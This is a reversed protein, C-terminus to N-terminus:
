PRVGTPFPWAAAPNLVTKVRQRQEGAGPRRKSQKTVAGRSVEGWRLVDEERIVGYTDNTELLVLQHNKLLDERIRAVIVTELRERGSLRKFEDKSLVYRGASKGGFEQSYLASLHAAIDSPTLAPM